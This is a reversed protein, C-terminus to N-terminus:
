QVRMGWAAAQGLFASRQSPVLVQKAGSCSLRTPPLCAEHESPLARPVGLGLSLGLWVGPQRAPSEGSTQGMVPLPAGLRQGGVNEKPSALFLGDGLSCM